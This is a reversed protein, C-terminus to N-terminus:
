REYLALFEKNGEAGLIPSDIVGAPKLGISAACANIEEVVRKHKEADRVIGGKGVEGRGVEFQPKILVIIRGRENLLGPVVPLIKTVSIFSVDIVALDFRRELGDPKLERANTNERVEVRPDDRLKWALQNTGADISTVHAAGHQLLCDTFGGTSSGIDICDMGTPDIGFTELAKELKLGGRSVYRAEPTDGKIRLVVDAAFAESPKDVRRENALVVGAMVMAQAKNRSDALGQEVLMVDVRRKKASLAQEESKSKDSM